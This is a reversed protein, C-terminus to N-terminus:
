TANTDNTTNALTGLEKLTRNIFDLSMELIFISRETNVKQNGLDTSISALGVDTM